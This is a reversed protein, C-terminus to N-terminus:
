VTRTTGQTIYPLHTCVKLLKWCITLSHLIQFTNKKLSLMYSQRALLRYMGGYCIVGMSLTTVRGRFTFSSVRSKFPCRKGKCIDKFVLYGSALASVTKASVDSGPCGDEVKYSPRSMTMKEPRVWYQHDISGNGVQLAYCLCPM